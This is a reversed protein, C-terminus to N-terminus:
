FFLWALAPAVILAPLYDGLPVKRVEFVLLMACVVLLGGSVNAAPVMAAGPARSAAWTVLLTITGQLALVPLASLLVGWRFVRAFAFAALGDMVAKVALVFFIGGLGEQVPGLVSLPGICFLVACALSGENFGVKVRRQQAKAFAEGAFHGLRNM